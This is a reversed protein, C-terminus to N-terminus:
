NILKISPSAMQIEDAEEQPIQKETVIGDVGNLDLFTSLSVIGIKSTDMLMYTNRAHSALTKKIVSQEVTETTFGSDLSFGSTSLFAKDAHLPDLSTLVPIGNTYRHGPRIYGGLFLIQSDLLTREALSAIELDATIITLGNRSSLNRVLEITTTGTDVIICDGDDVLSAATKGLKEKARHNQVKRKEYGVANTTQTAPMAGGHCRKIKGERELEDLDARITFSSVAFEKTLTSVLVKPSNDLMELIRARREEPFLRCASNSLKNAM